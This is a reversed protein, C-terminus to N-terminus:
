LGVRHEHGGVQLLGGLDDGCDGRVARQDPLRADEDPRHLHGSFRAAEENGGVAYTERGWVMRRLYIWGLVMVLLMLLMPVPQVSEASRPMGAHVATSLGWAIFHDTFAPPLIKDGYPLSGERVSILAIGRYISLTGLTM